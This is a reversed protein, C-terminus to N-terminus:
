AAILSAIAGGLKGALTSAFATIAVIAIPQIIHSYDEIIKNFKKKARKLWFHVKGMFKDFDSGQELEDIRVGAQRARMNIAAEIDKLKCNLKIAKDRNKPDTFDLRGLKAMVLYKDYTYDMMEEQLIRKEKSIKALRKKETKVYWDKTIVVPGKVSKPYHLFPMPVEVVMQGNPLINPDDKVEEARIEDAIRFVEPINYRHTGPLYFADGFYRRPKEKPYDWFWEDM